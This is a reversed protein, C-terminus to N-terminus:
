SAVDKLFRSVKDATKRLLNIDLSRKNKHIYLIESELVILNINFSVGADSKEDFYTKAVRIVFYNSMSIELETMLM